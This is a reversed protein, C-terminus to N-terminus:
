TLSVFERSRARVLGRRSGYQLVAAFQCLSKIRDKKKKSEGKPHRHRVNGKAVVLM